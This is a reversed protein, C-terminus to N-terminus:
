NLKERIRSDYEIAASSNPAQQQAIKKLKAQTYDNKLRFFSSTFCKERSLTFDSLINEQWLL